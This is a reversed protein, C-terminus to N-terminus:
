IYRFLFIYNSPSFQPSQKTANEDDIRWWENLHKFQTVYHGGMHSGHHDCIGKLEYTWSKSPDDSEEAFFDSLTINDGTYQCVAMNKSGNPHFRRITIFLSKPLKWIHSYIKANTRLNCNECKYGEIDITKLENQIWEYFTSGECPIKLSNFVEWQYTNNECNSCHITKRIMGFFITVIESNNKSIFKKWGNTAMSSMTKSENEIYPLETKTAEHFNDLLYVLFEHSDNPIPFGFMEYVTGQVAKKIENIFGLPRVYAPKSASWLSKLIDQYALLIKKANTEKLNTFDNTICVINWDPCTRLLQITSNCYCTNGMNQIGVIGKMFIQVRIFRLDNM